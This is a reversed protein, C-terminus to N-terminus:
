AGAIQMLSQGISSNMSASFLGALVMMQGSLRVDEGKVLSYAVMSIGLPMWVAILTVNMAHAALRIPVTEGKAPPLIEPEAPYLAERVRFLDPDNPRPPAIPPRAPPRNVNAKLRSVDVPRVRVRPQPKEPVEFRPLPDNVIEADPFHAFHREVEADDVPRRLIEAAVRRREAEQRDEVEQSQEAEVQHMLNEAMEELSEATPPADLQSWFVKEPPFRESLRQVLRETLARFRGEAGDDLEGAADGHSSGIAVTLYCAEHPENIEFCGMVIRTGNSQLTVLDNWDWAVELAKATLRNLVVQLESVVHAFNFPAKRAYYLYALTTPNPNSVALDGWHDKNVM